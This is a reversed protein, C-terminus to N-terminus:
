RIGGNVKITAGNIYSADDSTLFYVVNAIEIPEAFRNLLLKNVVQKKYFEDIGNNMGTNVWGPAIVNVRINPALYKAFDECVKILGAKSADYDISEPYNETLANDSSIFVISGKTLKEKTIESTLYLTGTLNVDIVEKFEEYSKSHIDNDICIGANNILIDINSIENILIDISEKKALDLEYYKVNDIRNFMNDHCYTTFVEYDNNLYKKVLELGIGKNGGTILVKKM